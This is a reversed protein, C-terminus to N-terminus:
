QAFYMLHLGDLVLYLGGKREPGGRALWDEYAKTGTKTDAFTALLHVSNYVAGAFRKFDANYADGLVAWKFALHAGTKQMKLAKEEGGSVFDIKPYNRYDQYKSWVSQLFQTEKADQEFDATIASLAQGTISDGFGSASSNSYTQSSM